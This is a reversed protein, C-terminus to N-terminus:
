WQKNFITSMLIRDLFSGIGAPLKFVSTAEPSL